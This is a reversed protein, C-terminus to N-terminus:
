EKVTENEEIGRTDMVCVGAGDHWKEAHVNM